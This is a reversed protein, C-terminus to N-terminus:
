HTKLSKEPQHGDCNELKLAARARGLPRLVKIRDMLREVAKHIATRVTTNALGVLFVGSPISPAVLLWGVLRDASRFFGWLSWAVISAVVPSLVIIVCIGVLSSWEGDTWWSLLSATLWITLLALITTLTGGRLSRIVSYIFADPFGLVYHWMSKDPERLHRRYEGIYNCAPYAGEAFAVHISSMCYEYEQPVFDVLKAANSRFNTEWAAYDFRPNPQGLKPAIAWLNVLQRLVESDNETQNFPASIRWSYFLAHRDRLRTGFNKIFFSPEFQKLTEELRQNFNLLHPRLSRGFYGGVHEVCFECLYLITIFILYRRIQHRRSVTQNPTPNHQEQKLVPGNTVM